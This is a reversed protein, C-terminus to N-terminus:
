RSVNGFVERFVKEAKPFILNQAEKLLTKAGEEVVEEDTMDDLKLAKSFFRSYEANESFAKKSLKFGADRLKEACALRLKPEDMRSLTCRISLNEKSINLSLVCVISVPKELGKWATGNDPVINAWAAPRFWVSNAGLRLIEFDGEEKLVAEMVEQTKSVEGYEKILAIAERHKRSITKCLSVLEEDEM